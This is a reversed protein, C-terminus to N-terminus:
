QSPAKGRLPESSLEVGYSSGFLTSALVLGAATLVAAVAISVASRMWGVPGLSARSLAVLQGLALLPLLVAGLLNAIRLGAQWAYAPVADGMLGGFATEYAGGGAFAPEAGNLFFILHLWIVLGLGLVFSGLPYFAPRAYM